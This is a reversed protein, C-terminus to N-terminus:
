EVEVSDVVTGDSVATDTTVTSDQLAQDWNAKPESKKSCGVLAILLAAIVIIRM